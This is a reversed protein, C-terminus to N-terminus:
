LQKGSKGRNASVVWGQPDTFLGSVYAPGSALQPMGVSSAFWGLGDAENGDAAFNLRCKYDTAVPPSTDQFGTPVDQTCQLSQIM